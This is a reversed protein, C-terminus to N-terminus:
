DESNARPTSVAPQQRAQYPISWLPQLPLDQAAPSPTLTWPQCPQAPGPPVPPPSSPRPAPTPGVLPAETSSCSAEKGSGATPRLHELAVKYLPREPQFRTQLSHVVTGTERQTLSPAKMKERCLSPFPM